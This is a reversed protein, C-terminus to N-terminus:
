KTDSRIDYWVIGGQMRLHLRGNCCVPGTSMGHNPAKLMSIKSDFGDPAAVVMLIASGEDRGLEKFVRGDGGVMSGAISYLFM